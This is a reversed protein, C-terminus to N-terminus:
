GRRDLDFKTTISFSLRAAIEEKLLTEYEDLDNTQPKQVKILLPKDDDQFFMEVDIFEIAQDVMAKCESHVM